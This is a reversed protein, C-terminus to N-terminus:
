ARGRVHLVDRLDLSRQQDLRGLHVFADVRAPRCELLREFRGVDPVFAKLIGARLVAEVVVRRRAVVRFRRLQRPFPRDREEVLVQSLWTAKARSAVLHTSPQLRKSKRWRSRRTKQWRRTVRREQELTPMENPAVSSKLFMVKVTASPSRHPMMPRLPAPFVDIKLTMVPSRWGVTPLTERLGPRRCASSSWCRAKSPAVVTQCAPAAAHRSTMSRSCRMASCAISSPLM